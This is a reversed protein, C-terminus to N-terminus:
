RSPLQVTLTGEPSQGAAFHFGWRLAVRPSGDWAWPALDIIAGFAVTAGPPFDIRMYPPPAPPFLEGTYRIVESPAFRLLFPSDGGYPFRGGYPGVVASVVLDSRNTVVLHGVIADDTISLTPGTVTLRDVADAPVHEVETHGVTRGDIDKGFEFRKV